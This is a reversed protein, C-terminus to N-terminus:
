ASFDGGKHISSTVAFYLSHQSFSTHAASLTDALNVRIAERQDPTLAAKELYLNLNKLKQVSKEYYDIAMTIEGTELYKEAEHLQSHIIASSILAEGLDQNMHGATIAARIRRTREELSLNGRHASM